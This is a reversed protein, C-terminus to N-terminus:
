RSSITSRLASLHQRIDDFSASIGPLPRSVLEEGHSEWDGIDTVRSGLNAIMPPKNVGFLSQDDLIYWRSFDVQKSDKGISQVDSPGPLLTQAIYSIEDAYARFGFERHAEIYVSDFSTKWM